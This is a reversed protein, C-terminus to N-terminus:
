DGKQIRYSDEDFHQTSFEFLETDELAIMQHALLSPIHFVDGKSLITEIVQGKLAGDEECPVYRLRIMGSHIYFTEDKIKHYHLSCKRDKAIYLLKGCYKESNCFWKEFGWGKSVFNITGSM